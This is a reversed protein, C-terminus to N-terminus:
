TDPPVPGRDTGRRWRREPINVAYRVPGSRHGPLGDTQSERRHGTVAYAECPCEGAVVVTGPRIEGGRKLVPVGEELISPM